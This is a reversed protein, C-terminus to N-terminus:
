ERKRSPAMPRRWHIPRSRWKALVTPDSGARLRAGRRPQFLARARPLLSKRVERAQGSSEATRGGVNPQGSAFGKPTRREANETKREERRLKEVEEERKEVNGSLNRRMCIVVITPDCQSSVWVANRVSGGSVLSIKSQAIVWKKGAPNPSM